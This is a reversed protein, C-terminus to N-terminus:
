NPVGLTKSSDLLRSLVNVVVHTKGPKYIVIFEYEFLLLLWKAIRKSVQPKNVMYILAMHNVYFVFKNGLLFHRFKHLVCVMALAEIEITIYNHKAKILLKSAYVIPQDYKGVANHALMAGIALLSTDIHV